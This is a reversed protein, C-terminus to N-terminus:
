NLADIEHRVMARDEAVRVMQIDDFRIPCDTDLPHSALWDLMVREMTAREPKEADSFVDCLKVRALVLTDGDYAAVHEGFACPKRYGKLKFYHKAAAIVRTEEM